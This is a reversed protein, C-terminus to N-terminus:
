VFNGVSGTSMGVAAWRAAGAGGCIRPWPLRSSPKGSGSRRMASCVIGRVAFMEPLDRLALKYRLRWLVVFAIVDSPYQTRNLVGGSRENFPKSCARCRFRRYGQATREPRETVAQSGCEL